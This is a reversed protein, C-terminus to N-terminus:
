AKDEETIRYDKRRYKKKNRHKAAANSRRLELRVRLTEPLAKGIDRKM